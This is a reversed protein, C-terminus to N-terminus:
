NKPSAAPPATSAGEAKPPSSMAGLNSVVFPVLFNAIIKVLMTADFRGGLIADGQNVASLLVGVV